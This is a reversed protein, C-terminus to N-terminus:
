PIQHIDKERCKILEVVNTCNHVSRAATYLMFDHLYQDLLRLQEQDLVFGKFIM